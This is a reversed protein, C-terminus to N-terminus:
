SQCNRAQRRGNRMPHTERRREEGKCVSRRSVGGQSKNHLGKGANDYTYRLHFEKHQHELPRKQRSSPGKGAKDDDHRRRQQQQSNTIWAFISNENSKNDSPPLLTNFSAVIKNAQKVMDVLDTWAEEFRTLDEDVFDTKTKVAAEELDSWPTLWKELRQVHAGKESKKRAEEYKNIAVQFDLQKVRVFQLFAATDTPIASRVSVVSGEPEEQQASPSRPKVPTKNATKLKHLNIKPLIIWNEERSAREIYQSAALYNGCLSDRVHVWETNDNLHDPVGMNQRNFMKFNVEEILKRLTGAKQQTSVLDFGESKVAEVIERELDKM